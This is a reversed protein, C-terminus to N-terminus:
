FYRSIIDNIKANQEDNWGLFKEFKSKFNEKSKRDHNLKEIIEKHKEDLFYWILVIEEKMHLGKFDDFWIIDYLQNHHWINIYWKEKLGKPMVQIQIDSKQYCIRDPYTDWYDQSTTVIFVYTKFDALEKFYLKYKDKFWDKGPCHLHLYFGKEKPFALREKAYQKFDSFKM